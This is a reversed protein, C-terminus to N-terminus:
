GRKGLLAITDVVSCPKYFYYGQIEHCGLAKIFRYQEETEVGEAIINLNLNSAILVIGEIIAKSKPNNLVDKVFSRDIKITDIPYLSICTLSSFGTGFDDLAISVGYAKFGNLIKLALQENEILTNETIELQVDAPAVEYREIIEIYTDLISNKRLQLASLNISLRVTKLGKDRWLAYQACAEEFVWEDIQAILGLEEALPIFHNPAIIEKKKTEIRVLAEVGVIEGSQASVQPQYHLIFGERSLAERLIAEHMNRLTHKRELQNDYFAYGNRGQSKAQYMAIDGKQLLSQADEADEPYLSIGLSLASYVPKNHIMIPEKINHIIREAIDIIDAEFEVNPLIIVFEDGGLRALIDNSRISFNIREALKVLLLDGAAHGMSDNIHKFHDLDIFMLAFKAQNAQAQQTIEALSDQFATRNPLNTLTDTYALNKIKNEQQRQETVDKFVGRYGCFVGETIIPKASVLLCIVKENQHRYWCEIETLNQHSHINSLSQDNISLEGLKKGILAQPSYGIVDVSSDSCYTFCHSENTEWLWNSTSHAIDSFRKEAKKLDVILLENELASSIIARLNEFATGKRCSLNLTMFGLPKKRFSLPLVLLTFREKYQEVEEPILQKAPYRKNSLTVPLNNRVSFLNTATSNEAGFNDFISVHLESLQLVDTTYKKISALDFSTNLNNVVDRFYNLYYESEFRQFKIASQEIDSKLETLRGIFHILYQAEKDIELYRLVSTQLKVTLMLWLNIEESQLAAELKNRLEILFCDFEKTYIAQQFLTLLSQVEGAIIGGRYEKVLREFYVKAEKFVHDDFINLPKVDVKNLTPHLDHHISTDCGCSKRIMLSTSIYLEPVAEKGEIQNILETAAARGLEFLPEQISTLPSTAFAGELTDMSGIVAVDEPVKIGKIQLQEIIGIAQDDNIAIIADFPTNNKQLFAAIEVEASVKNLNAYIVMDDNFPLDYQALLKKYVLMREESSAHNKPGRVFLIRRYGHVHYLHKFLESFGSKYDTLINTHGKIRSGINVIPVQSFQNIFQESSQENLLRTHSSFPSIVGSILDMDVLDFVTERALTLPDPSSLVGGCFGIVNYDKEEAVHAIGRMIEEQYKSTMSGALVALTLRGNKLVHQETEPIASM